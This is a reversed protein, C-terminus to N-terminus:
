AQAKAKEKAAGSQKGAAADVPRAKPSLFASLKERVLRPNEGAQLSLIGELLLKRYAIEEESKARLKNALPIYILNASILGWLTALFASAIAEGLKGPEDLQKLVNILGMVTGIIGFTPAFGGAAAFFGYGQAHREEMHHIEIELIARVQAPDVGDVVLMVAKRLFADNIKKSEEELALLGERRAKDAMKTLIEIAQHSENKQAFIAISLLKPIRLTVELPFSFASASISGSFILLIPAAKSVLELPSGGDMVMVVVVTSLGIVFGLITSLDM